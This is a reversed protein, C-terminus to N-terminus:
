GESATRDDKNAKGDETCGRYPCAFGLRVVAQESSSEELANAATCGISKGRVDNALDEKDVLSTTGHYTLWVYYSSM